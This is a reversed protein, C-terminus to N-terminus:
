RRCIHIPRQLLRSLLLLDGDDKGRSSTIEDYDPFNRIRDRLSEGSIKLARGSFAAISVASFVAGKDGLVMREILESEISTDSSLSAM